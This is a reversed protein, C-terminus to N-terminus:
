GKVVETKKSTKETENAYVTYVYAEVHQRKRKEDTKRHNAGNQENM